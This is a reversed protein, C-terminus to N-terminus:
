AHEVLLTAPSSTAQTMMRSGGLATKKNSKLLGGDGGRVSQSLFDENDTDSGDEFEDVSGSRQEERERGYLQSEMELGGRQQRHQQRTERDGSTTDEDEDEYDTFSSDSQGPRLGRPLLDIDDDDNVFNRGGLHGVGSSGGGSGGGDGGGRVSAYQGRGDWKHRTLYGAILGGVGIIGVFAYLTRRVTSAVQEESDAEFGLSEAHAPNLGEHHDTTPLNEKGKNGIKNPVTPDQDVIVKSESASKDAPPKSHQSAPGEEEPVDNSKPNHSEDGSQTQSLLKDGEDGTSTPTLPKAKINAVERKTEGWFQIRWDVFKGGFEPNNQDRVTLKWEGVPNEDWHKVTMFTWNPFGTTAADYRRRVGLRSEIGNPSTLVVEVDGRREHEINVTVTIHELTGLRVGEALLDEQSVKLVSIVGKANQPIKRGVPIAAPHFSTQPGLSQFTKAAEVLAYADLSGYGFKHNFMRGAATKTWDPDDVSVPIATTMVLYQVDRWSLDPRVSLVLAIMGAAIPAAASTGGHQDFCRREGVDCTYIASGGGNSYTVALQASCAESYYPHRGARDIAGISVTYLSNTYGDFNCDDDQSGGNGTAFVFISGLGSRGNKIGNKMADLVVGKPADMSQGDDPPGWSCSYIHNDQFRYNLAAAEDVDTIQGSLIRLGAVKAGYAVGLGCLDNKAAAIEGACRTGHQDDVLRPMPLATRDNFDWSGEKFFNPALDESTLDLGDDIIAVNVGTGNIGPDGIDFKQAFGDEPQEEGAPQYEAKPDGEPDLEGEGEEGEEQTEESGESGEDQETSEEGVQGEGGEDDSASEGQGQEEEAVEEEEAASEVEEEEQEQEQESGSPRGPRNNGGGRRVPSKAEGGRQVRGKPSSHQLSPDSDPLPARKKNRRRLKQREITGMTQVIDAQLDNRKAKRLSVMETGAGGAEEQRKTYELKLAHFREVIPDTEAVQVAELEPEPRSDISPTFQLAHGGFEPPIVSRKTLGGGGGGRGGEARKQKQPASNSSQGDVFRKPASYLFYDPLQGVAAEFRLGLLDGIGRQQDEHLTWAYDDPEAGTGLRHHHRHHHQQQQHHPSQARILYYDRADHDYDPIFDTRGGYAYAHSHTNTFFALLVATLGIICSTKILRTTSTTTTTTRASM